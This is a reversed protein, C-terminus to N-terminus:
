TLGLRQLKDRYGRTLTLRAGTRLIVVYEGHFMPHLEKIQEINVMASRSIRLFRSSPLKSELATMTERLMHEDKGVHLKVYNDAAEVWDVDTLRLFIIRGESKVPLREALNPQVKVDELLATLRRQIEGAQNRHIQNRARHLATQLRDATCPKVLYDLAHVEFARLAFDDNATVFIIIPMRAPNIQALVGFGDLEPMRVDLFVLDPALTNIATLAEPGSAPMGVVEIDPEDKVMRRLLERALLQDDVILTRIKTPGPITGLQNGPNNESECALTAATMISM